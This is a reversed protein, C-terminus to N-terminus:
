GVKRVLSELRSAFPSDAGSIVQDAIRILRRMADPKKMREAKAIRQLAEFHEPDLWVNFQKLKPESPNEPESDFDDDDPTPM